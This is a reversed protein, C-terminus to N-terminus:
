STTLTAEEKQSVFYACFRIQIPEDVDQQESAAPFKRMEERFDTARILREFESRVDDCSRYCYELWLEGDRREASDAALWYLEFVGVGERMLWFQGGLCAYGRSPAM